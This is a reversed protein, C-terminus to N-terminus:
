KEKQVDSFLLREECLFIENVPKWVKDFPVHQTGNHVTPTWVAVKKMQLRLPLSNDTYYDPASPFSCF